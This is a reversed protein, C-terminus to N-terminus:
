RRLSRGAPHARTAARGRGRRVGARRAHRGLRHRARGPAADARRERQLDLPRGLAPARRGRRARRGRAAGRRDSRALPAPHRDPPRRGTRPRAGRAARACRRVHLRSLVRDPAGRASDASRGGWARRRHLAGDRARRASAGSCSRCAPRALGHLGGGARRPQPRHAHARRRAAGTGRHAGARGRTDRRQRGPARRAAAGGLLARAAGSRDARRRHLDCRARATGVLAAPAEGEHVVLGPVGLALANRAARQAREARAEVAVARAGPEARLWEIGISGSGAGVDWLLLGPAPELAALTVARVARKTLQGDHEYAEDPLGPSRSLVPTGPQARCEVAVCHLPDAAREGWEAPTSETVQEASGGLQELVVMRSPGFGRECLVHALGSAGAAGSVYAVIRRGPQLWRALVDPPRGVASVLEVEDEPWGLRACAIAFASVHPFVLVRDPGLRRALTAGIGHLM